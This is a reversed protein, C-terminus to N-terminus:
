PQLMLYLSGAYFRGKSWVLRPTATPPSQLRKRTALDTGCVRALSEQSEAFNKTAPEVERPAKEGGKDIRVM